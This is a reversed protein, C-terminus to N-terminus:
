NVVLFGISVEATAAVINIVFSGAGPVVNAIRATADNTRIVAHVTSSTTCLSCTVTVTTGAAAINVTGAAKDITRNGTTGGATITQDVYHQRVLSDRFTGATGNNFEVKGAANRHLGTDSSNGVPEGSAWTLGYTSLYRILSTGWIWTATGNLVSACIVSAPIAYFGSNTFNSFGISPTALAGNPFLIQGTGKPTLVININTASGLAAHTINGATQVVSEYQTTNGIFSSLFPKTASGLSQTSAPLLDTNIAVSALNDLAATAGTITAWEPATAGANMRLQQLATGKPLRTLVNSARFYTDGDADSGLTMTVAGIVAGTGLGGTTITGVSVLSSLTAVDSAVLTKAGTPLTYAGTDDAATFSMTKSVTLTKGDVITLTSGTAPATITVKNITTAAAVGLTPTVFTPSAFISTKFNAITIKKTAPTGGPDEVYPLIDTTLVATGATLATIKQDAM